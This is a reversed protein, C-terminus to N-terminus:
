CIGSVFQSSAWTSYIALKIISLSITPAEVRWLKKPVSEVGLMKCFHIGFKVFEFAVSTVINQHLLCGEAIPQTICDTWDHMHKLDHESYGEALLGEKDTGIMFPKGSLIGAKVLLIPGISIAGIIKGEFAKIFDIIDGDEVASRIDVAGPLLLSDYEQINLEDLKKDPLVNLGEECRIAEKSKAFVDIPRNNLALIELAVSIEFFCFREYILVATKKM